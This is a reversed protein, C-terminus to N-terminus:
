RLRIEEITVDETPHDKDDTNVKEIKEVVDMGEFVRGFNTHKGDLHPTADDTVIFFQSGNTDAGSNAMAFSGKVLKHSNIEDKFSYGPGGTGDDLWDDDKSNPDGGQIMFGKIVRHFKTGNYFGEEALRFFNGVTLPSDESFFEVKIDGLNTVITAKKYKEAYELSKKEMEPDITKKNVPEKSTEKKAPPPPTQSKQQQNVAPAQPLVAEKKEIDLVKVFKEKKENNGNLDDEPTLFGCGSLFFVVVFLPINKLSIKINKM